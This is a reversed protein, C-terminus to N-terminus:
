ESRCYAGRRLRKMSATGKPSTRKSDDHHELPHGDHAAVSPTSIVDAELGIRDHTPQLKHTIKTAFSGVGVYPAYFQANCV